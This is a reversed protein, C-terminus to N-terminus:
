DIVFNLAVLTPDNQLRKESYNRFITRGLIFAYIFGHTAGLFAVLIGVLIGSGTGLVFSFVIGVGISIISMPICCVTAFSCLIISILVSLSRNDSVSELSSSLTNKVQNRDLLMYIMFLTIIFPEIMMKLRAMLLRTRLESNLDIEVDQNNYLMEERMPTDSRISSVIQPTEYVTKISTPTLQVVKENQKSIPRLRRPTHAQNFYEEASIFTPGNIANDQRSLTKPKPKYNEGISKDEVISEDINDIRISLM